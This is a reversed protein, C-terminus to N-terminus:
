KNEGIVQFENNYVGDKEQVIYKVKDGKRPYFKKFLETSFLADIIIMEGNKSKERIIINAYGSEVKKVKGFFIFKQNKSM